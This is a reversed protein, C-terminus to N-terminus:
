VVGNEKADNSLTECSQVVNVGLLIFFAFKFPNKYGRRGHIIIIISVILAGGDDHTDLDEELFAHGLEEEYGEKKAESAIFVPPIRTTERASNEM